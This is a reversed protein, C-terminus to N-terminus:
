TMSLTIGCVGPQTCSREKQATFEGVGRTSGSEMRQRQVEGGIMGARERGRKNQHGEHPASRSAGYIRAGGRKNQHGEHPLAQLCDSKRAGARGGAELHQPDLGVARRLRALELGGRRARGGRALAPVGGGGADARRAADRRRLSHSNELNRDFRASRSAAIEARLRPPWAAAAAAAAAAAM